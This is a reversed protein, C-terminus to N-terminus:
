GFRRPSATSCITRVCGMNAGIVRERASILKGKDDYQERRSCRGRGCIPGKPGATGVPATSGGLRSTMYNALFNKFKDGDLVQIEGDVVYIDRGLSQVTVTAEALVTLNVVARAKEVMEGVDVLRKEETKESPTLPTTAIPPAPTPPLSGLMSEMRSSMARQDVTPIQSPDVKRTAM